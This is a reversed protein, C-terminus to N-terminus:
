AQYSNLDSTVAPLYQFKNQAFRRSANGATLTQPSYIERPTTQQSLRAADEAGKISRQTNRDISKNGLLLRAASLYEQQADHTTM